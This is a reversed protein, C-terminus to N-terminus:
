VTAVCTMTSVTKGSTTNTACSTATVTSIAFSSSITATAAASATSNSGDQFVGVLTIQYTKGVLVLPTNENGNNIPHSIQFTRIRELNTNVSVVATCSTQSGNGNCQTRTFAPSTLNWCSSGEASGNVYVDLCSLPTTADVSVTATLLAESPCLPFPTSCTPRNKPIALLLDSVTLAGTKAGSGTSSSNAASSSTLVVFGMASAIIVGIVMLALIPMRRPTGQEPEIM